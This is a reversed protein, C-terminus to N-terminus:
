VAESLSDSATEAQPPFKPLDQALFEKDLLAGLKTAACVDDASVLHTYDMTTRSGVHGLREQRVALPVHLSDLLTANGHRFAHAGGKLGLEDLIPKLHRKVFNDPELRTGGIKKGKKTIRVPTLFLPEKEARGAVFPKLQEILGSSLTFVRKKVVGNTM